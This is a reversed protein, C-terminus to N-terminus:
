EDVEDRAPCWRRGVTDFHCHLCLDKETEDGYCYESTCTCADETM